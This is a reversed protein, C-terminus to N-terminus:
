RQDPDVSGPDIMSKVRDVVQTFNVDSKVFYEVAGLDKAEQIDTQQKLNSLVVVPIDEVGNDKMDDMVEFGSKRPLLLEMIVIDPRDGKLIKNIGEEGNTAEIFLVGEKTFKDRYLKRLFGDNEIMLVKKKNEPMAM